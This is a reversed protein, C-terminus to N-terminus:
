LGYKAKLYKELKEVEPTTLRGHVAVLEAVDGDLAQIIKTTSQPHGGIYSANGSASVDDPVRTEIRNDRTGNIRVELHTGDYRRMAYLRPRGDNLDLTIGTVYHGYTSQTAAGLSTGKLNTWMLVGPYPPTDYVAKMYFAGADSSANKWSGVVFVAYDDTSWRLSTADGIELAHNSGDFRVVAHGNIVDDVFLPRQSEMPQKANNGKRSQDAWLRVRGEDTTVGKDAELWLVLGPLESPSFMTADHESARGAGTRTVIAITIISVVFAGIGMNRTSASLRTRRRVVPALEDADSSRPQARIDRRAVADLCEVVGRGDAIRDNPDKALMSAVLAELAPPADPWHTRLRPTEGFLVKALVEMVHDGPFPRRGTLCEFLVCGLAFVDARAGVAAGGHNAQEPAIYGLTGVITGTKTVRQAAALGALGFDLLQVRDVDGGPLMLNQPKIDRHVIGRSHATALATAVHRVLALSEDVGLPGKAIRHALDDGEIWEMALYHRGDATRGHTLYRVIHPHRLEDLVRAERDFRALETADAGSFLKVAALEGTAEDRARWVEGMGGRGALSELVFRDAIRTPPVAEIAVLEDLVQWATRPRDEAHKSLLRMCLAALEPACSLPAPDHELTALKTALADAGPFPAQGAILEYLIAGISFLDAAAAFGTEGYLLEPARYGPVCASGLPTDAGLMARATWRGVYVRDGDVFIATPDLDRHVVGEDHAAGIIRCLRKIRETATSPGPVADLWARLTRAAEIPETVFVEGDASLGLWRSDLDTLVV